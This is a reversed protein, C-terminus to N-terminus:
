YVSPISSMFTQQILLYVGISQESGQQAYIYIVSTWAFLQCTADENRFMKPIFSYRIHTNRQLWFQILLNILEPSWM